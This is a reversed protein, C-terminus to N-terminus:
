PQLEVRRRLHRAGPWTLRERHGRRGGACRDRQASGGLCSRGLLCGGAFSGTAARRRTERADAGPWGICAALASQVDLPESSMLPNGACRLALSAALSTRGVSASQAAPTATPGASAAGGTPGVGSARGATVPCIVCPARTVTECPVHFPLPGIVRVYRQYRHLVIPARQM